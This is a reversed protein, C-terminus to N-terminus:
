SQRNLPPLEGFIEFYKELYDSEKERSNDTLLEIGLKLENIPYKCKIKQYKVGADHQNSTSNVSTNAKKADEPNMSESMKRMNQSFSSMNKFQDM